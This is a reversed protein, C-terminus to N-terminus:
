TTNFDVERGTQWDSDRRPLRSYDLYIVELRHDAWQIFGDLHM